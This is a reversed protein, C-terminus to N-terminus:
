ARVEAKADREQQAENSKAVTSRRLSLPEKVYDGASISLSSAKSGKPRGTKRPIPKKVAPVKRSPGAEEDGGGGEEEDEQDMNDVEIEHDREDEDGYDEGASADEDADGEEEEEEEDRKRKKPQPQSKPKQKALTRGPPKM